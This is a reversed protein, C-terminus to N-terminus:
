ITCLIVLKFLENARRDGVFFSELALQFGMIGM